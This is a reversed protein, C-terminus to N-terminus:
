ESILEVTKDETICVSRKRYYSGTISGVRSKYWKVRRM